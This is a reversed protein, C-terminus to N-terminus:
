KSEETTLVNLVIEYKKKDNDKLWKYGFAEWTADELIM